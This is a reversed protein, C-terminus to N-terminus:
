NAKYNYIPKIVEVIEATPEIAQMIEEIPKYVQPAEDITSDNVSTTYIDSMADKYENMSITEKAKSRSMLRGAGHPASYNWDDNGKGICILSGDRMNIPVIFKEGKQASVAGKRLIMNKTDIYNHITEFRDNIHWGMYGVILEAITKRNLSAFQQVIEMDNIYDEFDQGEVYALEKCFKPQQLKRLESNIDKERGQAKLSEILEKKKDAMSNLKEYARNQYYSCVGVGLNRSGSHIVLYLGGDKSKDVEIFHNGGGLSGISLIARELNVHKSCRLNDFNFSHIPILHINFGSPIHEHIVMDLEKLDIEREQLEVVLIGCSIDVGVLNPTIKDTITMTTGITCGKGAHSDPMIRIKANQYPEFSALTKVQEYAENEFTEAFVKVENGITNKIIKM